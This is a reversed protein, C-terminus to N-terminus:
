DSKTDAECDTIVGGYSPKRDEISKLVRSPENLHLQFHLQTDM